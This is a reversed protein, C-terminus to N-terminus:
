QSQTWRARDVHECAAVATWVAPPWPRALLPVVFSWAIVIGPARRQWDAHAIPDLWESWAGAWAVAAPSLDEGWPVRWREWSWGPTWAALFDLATSAGYHQYVSRIWWRPYRQWLVDLEDTSENRTSYNIAPMTSDNMVSLDRLGPTPDRGDRALSPTAPTARRFILDEHALSETADEDALSETWRGEWFRVLWHHPDHGRCWTRVEAVCALAQEPSWHAERQQMGRQWRAWTEATERPRYDPHWWLVENWRLERPVDEGSWMRWPSQPAGKDPSWGADKDPSWGADQSPPLGDYQQAWRDWEEAARWALVGSEDDVRGHTFRHVWWWTVEHFRARRRASGWGCWIRTLRLTASATGPRQWGRDADPDDAGDEPPGGWPRQERIHWRGLATAESESRACAAAWLSGAWPHRGQSEYWRRWPAQWRAAQLPYVATMHEVTDAATLLCTGPHIQRWRSTWTVSWPRHLWDWAGPRARSPADSGVGWWHRPVNLADWLAATAFRREEQWWRRIRAETWHRQMYRLWHGWLRHWTTTLRRRRTVRVLGTEAVGVLWATEAEDNGDELLWSTDVQADLTLCAPALRAEVDHDPPVFLWGQDMLRPGLMRVSHFRLVRQVSSLRHRGRRRPGPGHIGDLGDHSAVLDVVVSDLRQEIRQDATLRPPPPRSGWEHRSVPWLGAFPEGSPAGAAANRSGVRGTPGLGRSPPQLGRVPLTWSGDRSPLTFARAVVAASGTHGGDFPTRSLGSPRHQLASSVLRPQVPLACRAWAARLLWAQPARVLPIALESWAAAGPDADPEDVSDVRVACGWHRCRCGVHHPKNPPWHTRAVGWGLALPSGAPWAINILVLQSSWDALWDAMEGAGDRRLPAVLDSWSPVLLMHSSCPADEVSAARVSRWWWSLALQVDAWWVPRMACADRWTGSWRPPPGTLTWPGERRCWWVAGRPTEDPAEPEDDPAAPLLDRDLRALDWQGPWGGDQWYPVLLEQPPLDPRIRLRVAVPRGSAAQPASPDLLATWIAEWPRWWAQWAELAQLAARDTLETAWRRRCARFPTLDMRWHAEPWLGPRHRWAYWRRWNRAIWFAQDRNPLAAWLPRLDPPPPAHRVLQQWRVWDPHGMALVRRFPWASCADSVPRQASRWLAAVAPVTAAWARLPTINILPMEAECERFSHLVPRVRRQPVTARAATVQCWTRWAPDAETSPLAETDRWWRRWCDVTVWAAGPRDPASSRRWTWSTATAHPVRVIRGEHWEWHWPEAPLRRVLPLYMTAVPRWAQPLEDPRERYVYSMLAVSPPDPDDPAAGVAAGAALVREGSWWWTDDELNDRITDWGSESWVIHDELRVSSWPALPTVPAKRSSPIVPPEDPAWLWGRPPPRHAPWDEARTDNWWEAWWGRPLRSLRPHPNVPIIDERIPRAGQDRGPWDQHSLWAAILSGRPPSPCSM